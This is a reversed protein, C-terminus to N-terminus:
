SGNIKRGASFDNSGRGAPQSSFGSSTGMEREHLDDHLSRLEEYSWNEIRWNSALGYSHIPSRLHSVVTSKPPNWDGDVSWHNGRLRYSGTSEVRIMEPAPPIPREDRGKYLWGFTWTDLPTTCGSRFARIIKGDSICAVTPYERVNLEQILEPIADRDIIQIHNETGAGIKWGKARMAEFDGGARNLKALESQCRDCNQTTIFLVRVVEPTLKPPGAISQIGPLRRAAPKSLDSSTASVRTVDDGWVSSGALSALLLAAIVLMREVMRLIGLS